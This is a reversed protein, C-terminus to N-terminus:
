RKGSSFFRNYLAGTLSEKKESGIGSLYLISKNRKDELHVHKLKGIQERRLPKM